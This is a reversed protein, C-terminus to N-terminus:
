LSTIIIIILHTMSADKTPSDKVLRKLKMSMSVPWSLGYLVTCALAPLRYMKKIVQVMFIRYDPDILRNVRENM